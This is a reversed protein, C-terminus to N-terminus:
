TAATFLLGDGLTGLDLISNLQIGPIVRAHNTDYVFFSEKEFGVTISHGGGLWGFLPNATVVYINAITKESSRLVSEVKSVETTVSSIYELSFKNRASVIVRNQSQMYLEEIILYGNRGEVLYRRHFDIAYAVEASFRQQDPVNYFQCYAEFYELFEQRDYANAAVAFSALVCSPIGAGQQFKITNYSNIAIM